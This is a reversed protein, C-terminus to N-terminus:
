SELSEPEPKKKSSTKKRTTTSTTKKRTTAARKVTAAAAAAPARSKVAKEKPRSPPKDAVEEKDLASVSKAIKRRMRSGSLPTLLLLTAAGVVGGLLAGVWLNQNNNSM